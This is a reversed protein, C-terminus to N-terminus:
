RSERILMAAVRERGRGDILGYGRAALATRAAPDTLLNHLVQIADPAPTTVSGLGATLGRAVTADYGIRQNDAVRMLATPVGLCLLEWTSTGAASVVLDADAALAPLRDTPAIPTVCQGPTLPIAALAKATEERAAVVTAAFPAETAAALKIAAPAADAADTGGFFCLVRPVDTRRSRPAAPRLIRVSDRLLAYRVGALWTGGPHGEAGLNQDLYIDARQGRTDGDVIALVTVGAERLSAACAPDTVYSDIVM